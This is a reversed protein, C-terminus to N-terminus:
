TEVVTIIHRAKSEGNIKIEFTIHGPGSLPIGQIRNFIRHRERQISLNTTVLDREEEGHGSVSLTSQYDTDADGEERQWLSFAVLEPLVITPNDGLGELEEANPYPIEELIEFVSVQNTAQDVAVSKSITFVELRM